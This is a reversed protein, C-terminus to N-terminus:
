IDWEDIVVIEEQEEDNTTVDVNEKLIKSALQEVTLKYYNLYNTVDLFAEDEEYDDFEGHDRDISVTAISKGLWEFFKEFNEEDLEIPDKKNSFGKLVEMNVRKDLSIVYITLKNDKEMQKLKKQAEKIKDSPNGDTFLVLWPQYYDVGKQRYMRKREELVRLAEEIGLSMNTNNGMKDFRTFEKKYEITSFDEVLKAEDSFSVIAIECSKKADFHNSIIQYFTNVGTVVKDSLSVGGRVVRVTKGDLQKIEDTEEYQGEVVVDMSASNDILLVVPVRIAKNTELSDMDM